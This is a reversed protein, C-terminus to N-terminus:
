ANADPAPRARKLALRTYVDRINESADLITVAFVRAEEPTHWGESMAISVLDDLAHARSQEDYQDPLPVIRDPYPLPWAYSKDRIAVPDFIDIILLGKNTLNGLAGEWLTNGFNTLKDADSKHMEMLFLAVRQTELVKELSACLQAVRGWVQGSKGEQGYAVDVEIDHIHVDQKARNGTGVNVNVPPQGTETVDLGVSKYIQSIIDATYHTNANDPHIQVTSWKFPWEETELKNRVARAFASVPSYSGAHVHIVGGRGHFFPTLTSLQAKWDLCPSWDHNM